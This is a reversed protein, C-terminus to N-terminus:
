WPFKFLAHSVGIGLTTICLLGLVVLSVRPYLGRQGAAAVVVAAFFPLFCLPSTGLTRLWGHNVFNDCTCHPTLMVAGFLVAFAAADPRWTALVLAFMVVPAVYCRLMGCGECCGRALPGGCLVCTAIFALGAVGALALAIGRSPPRLGGGKLLSRFRWGLGALVAGALGVVATGTLTVRAGSFVALGLHALAVVFVISAGLLIAREARHEPARRTTLLAAALVALVGALWGAIGLDEPKPDGPLRMVFATFNLFGAHERAGVAVTHEGLRLGEIEWVRDSRSLPTGAMDVMPRPHLAGPDLQMAAAVREKASEAWVDDVPTRVITPDYRVRDVAVVRLERDLMVRVRARESALAYPEFYAVRWRVLPAGADAFAIIEAASHDKRLADWIKEAFVQSVSHLTGEVDIGQRALEADARAIIEEQSPADFLAEYGELTPPGPKSHHQHSRGGLVTVVMTAALGLALLLPQSGIRRALETM